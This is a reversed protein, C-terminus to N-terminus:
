PSPSASTTPTRSMSPAAFGIHALIPPFPLIRHGVILRAVEGLSSRGLLVRLAAFDSVTQVADLKAGHFVPQLIAKVNNPCGVEIQHGDIFVVGLGDVLEDFLSVRKLCREAVEDLALFRCEWLGVQVYAEGSWYEVRCASLEVSHLATFRSDDVKRAQATPAAIM